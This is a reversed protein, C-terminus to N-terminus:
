LRHRSNLRTSKRDRTRAYSGVNEAMSARGWAVYLKTLATQVLDEAEHWDGCMLYAIRFLQGAQASAFEGFEAEAAAIQKTVTEGAPM